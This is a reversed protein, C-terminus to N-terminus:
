LPLESSEIGYVIAQRYWMPWLATQTKLLKGIQSDLLYVQCYDDSNRVGRGSGQVIAQIAQASFWLQGKRGSFLRANTLKDSMDLYPCKLFCIFRCLDGVLNLGRLSSPSVFIGNTSNIFEDYKSNKDQGNHVIMRHSVEAITQALKFSVSHILGKENPHLALIRAVSEQIISDAPKDKHTLSYDGVYVIKRRDIAYPSDLEIYDMESYDLGLLNCLVPKAPLTASMILFKSGHNLLYQDTMTRTLWKPKLTFSINDHYYVWADPTIPQDLLGELRKAWRQLKTHKRLISLDRNDPRHGQMEDSVISKVQSAISQSEYGVARYLSDIYEPVVKHSTQFKPLPVHINLRELQEQRFQLAIFNTLVSELEDAEDIIINRLGFSKSSDKIFGTYNAATLFYHFNLATYPNSLAARKAQQYSCDPCKKPRNCNDATDYVPCPYNSRGKLLSLEPFDEVIQSQLPISSCLYYLPKDISEMALISKGAGTPANVCVVKKTSQRVFDIADSQAPRYPLGKNIGLRIM